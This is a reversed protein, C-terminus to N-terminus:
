KQKGGPGQQEIYHPMQAVLNGGLAKHIMGEPLPEIGRRMVIHVVGFHIVIVAQIEVDPIAQHARVVGLIFVRKILNFIPNLLQPTSFNLSGCAIKVIDM